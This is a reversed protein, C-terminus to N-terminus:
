GSIKGLIVYTGSYRLVLVRDGQTFQQGTDLHSYKKKLQEAGGNVSLSIGSPDIDSIVATFFPSVEQKSELLEGSIILEDM